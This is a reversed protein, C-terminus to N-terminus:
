PCPCDPKPNLVPGGFEQEQTKRDPLPKTRYKPIRLNSLVPRSLFGTPVSKLSSCDYIIYVSWDPIKLAGGDEFYIADVDVTGSTSRPSVYRQQQGGEPANESVLVCCDSFNFVVGGLGLTKLGLPDTNITPNSLAYSYLQPGGSLGLPDV